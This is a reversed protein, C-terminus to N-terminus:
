AVEGSLTYGANELAEKMNDYWVYNDKENCITKDEPNLVPHRDKIM